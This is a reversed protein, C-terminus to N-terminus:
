VPSIDEIEKYASLLNSQNIKFNSYKIYTMVALCHSSDIYQDQSIDLQKKILSLETCAILLKKNGIEKVVDKMLKIASDFSNKKIENISQSIKDQLNDTPKLLNLGYNEFTKFYFDTNTTATTGFLIFDKNDNVINLYQGTAKDITLINSFEKDMDYKYIWHHISNCAINIIKPNLSNLYSLSTNLKEYPANNNRDIAQARDPIKSNSYLLVQPHEQDGKNTSFLDTLIKFYNAGAQPGMGGLIAIDINM